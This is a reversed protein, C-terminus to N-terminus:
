RIQTLLDRVGLRQGRDQGPALVIPAADRIAPAVRSAGGSSPPPSAAPVGAPIRAARTAALEALPAAIRTKAAAVQERERADVDPAAPVVTHDISAITPAPARDKKAIPPAVLVFRDDRIGALVQGFPNRLVEKGLETTIEFLGQHYGVIPSVATGNHAVFLLYRRGKQLSPMGSVAIRDRGVQGGDFRLVIRGDTPVNGKHTALATLTVFSRITTHAADWRSEVGAVTGTGIWEATRSITSVTMPPVLQAPLPACWLLLLGGPLAVRRHRARSKTPALALPTM